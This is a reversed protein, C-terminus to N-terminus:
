PRAEQGHRLLQPDAAPGLRTDEYGRRKALLRYEFAVDCTKGDLARVTFSAPTKAALYLACDGLPTLFVHYEAALNATEAFIPEVSVV